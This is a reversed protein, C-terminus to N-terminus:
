PKAKMLNKIYNKTVEGIVTTITNGAKGIFIGASEDFYGLKWEGQHFYKFPKVARLINQAQGLSINWKALRELAHESFQVAGKETTTGPVFLLASSIADGYQKDRINQGINDINAILIPAVQSIIAGAVISEGICFDEFCKGSPDDQNIPNGGAYIYPNQTLPNILNGSLTDRTIFRGTAPDYYRARLFYFNTDSDLRQGDYEHAPSGGSQYTRVGYPDFSLVSDMSGSNNTMFRTNGMGDELYYDVVANMSYGSWEAINGLGYLYWKNISNFTLSYEELVKSLSGSTDNIFRINQGSQPDMEYRNGLGDYKYQDIYSGQQNKILNNEFNYTYTTNYPSGYASTRNGNNDSGYAHGNITALRNDNDYTYTDNISFHNNNTLRNGVKDYTYSYTYSPYGYTAGVIRRLNDYFFTNTNAIGFFTGSETAIKIDGV